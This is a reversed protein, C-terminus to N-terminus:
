KSPTWKKKLEEWTLERGQKKLHLWVVALIILIVIGGATLFLWGWVFCAPCDTGGCDIGEEDVDQETNSCHECGLGEDINGDCNNDKLDCIEQMGPNINPDSDDCDEEPYKCQNSAPSGYLDSDSDICPQCNDDIQGNCNDDINNGCIEGPDPSVGGECPGWKGGRCTKTGYQCKGISSGCTQTNNEECCGGDEDIQDNCNDDIGNCDDKQSQMVIIAEATKYTCACYTVAVSTSGGIDDIISSCDDDIGNCVEPKVLSKDEGKCATWNGNKCTSNGSGCAGCPRVDNEECQKAMFQFTQEQSNGNIDEVSIKFTNLGIPLPSSITWKVDWISQNLNKTVIPNSLVSNNYYLVTNNVKIADIITATIILDEEVGISTSYNIQMEPPNNDVTTNKEPSFDGMNNANDIAKCRFRYIGDPISDINNSTQTGKYFQFWVGSTGNKQQIIYEKIGSEGDLGSWGVTFSNSSQYAPMNDITCSPKATDVLVSIEGSEQSNDARDVAAVKFKYIVNNAPLLPDSGQGFDASKQQSDFNKWLAYQASGNKYSVTYNVIGSEYDDGSWSVTFITTNTIPQATSSISVGTPAQTDVFTNVPLSPGSVSIANMATCRFYYLKNNQGTTFSHSGSAQTFVGLPEWTGTENNELTVTTITSGVSVASWSLKISSSNSYYKLPTMTCTPVTTDINVTKTKKTETNGAVDTSQYVLNKTCTNKGSCFIQVTNGETSPNCPTGGEYVCYYTKNCGSGASTDDCTLAIQTNNGYWGTGLNDTTVPPQKDIKFVSSTKATEQNGSTDTSYYCVNKRCVSGSPCSVTGGAGTSFTVCSQGEDIISYYITYGGTDICTLTFPVDLNTWSIGNPSIATNPKTQDIYACCAKTDYSSPDTCNAVHANTVDSITAVCAYGPGLNTCPDKNTVYGCEISDHSINLCVSNGYNGGGNEEEAHANTIDYLMLVTKYTGSCGNGLGSVGSIGPIGCCVKNNKYNNQTPLEAHANTGSSMHFIDAEGSSCATKVSCSLQVQAHVSVPILFVLVLILLTKKM